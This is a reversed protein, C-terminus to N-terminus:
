KLYVMKKSYYNGELNLSYVYVGSPLLNGSNGKGNWEIINDGINSNPIYITRVKEGLINYINLAARQNGISNFKITTSSNFPNPYNQSLIGYDLPANLSLNLAVKLTGYLYKYYLTANAPDRYGHGSSDSYTFYFDVEENAPLSPFTFSYKLSGDYVMSTDVSKNPAPTFNIKVTAPNIGNSFFIKNLIYSNIPSNFRINPFSIANKASILGYGRSNNPAATNDSTELFIDRVQRNNLYPYASLLLGAVGCVIPASLSTGSNFQYGGVTGSSAGYVDVGLAVVEPKIRGDYTPGRSSFAAVNNLIDVAGIALISDEDAPTDIYIWPTDGENGAATITVVGRHFALKCAKAVISTKGDMNQYTYSYTSDDFIDYGLSSSTIQVGLNEMWILAAAYNDEEIHSESPVNETKALIFSSNFSAGIFLSDKYGGVVSFVMTGHEDQTPFDGLQNATVSDHNIFDYEAVVNKNKLSEHRKWDFGTDLLGILVGQGTIGLAHVAPIDEMQLQPYSIGYDVNSFAAKNLRGAPHTIEPRSKLIRVPIVDKVFPLAIITNRQEPTLYASVSNFWSLKNVIKIGQVEIARIYNENVPIDDYDIFDEGLTKERREIATPTLTKLADQYHLGSKNLTEGVNLGKDKFYILYKTQAFSITCFTIILLLFIKM